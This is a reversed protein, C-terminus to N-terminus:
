GRSVRVEKMKDAEEEEEEEEGGEFRERTADCM